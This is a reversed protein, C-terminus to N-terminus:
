KTWSGFKYPGTGVIGVGPTGVKKGNAEMFAKSAVAGAMTALAYPFIADPKSFKITVELPGSPLVSSVREHFTALYSGVKPDRHRVPGARGGGGGGCAALLWAFGLAGAAGGGRVVVERRTLLRRDVEERRELEEDAM